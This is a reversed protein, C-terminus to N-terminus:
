WYSDLSSHPLRSRWQLQLRPKSEVWFSEKLGVSKSEVWDYFVNTVGWSTCVAMQEGVAAAEDYRIKHRIYCVQCMNELWPPEMRCSKTHTRPEFRTTVIIKVKTFLYSYIVCDCLDAHAFTACPRHIVHFPERHDTAKGFVGPVWIARNRITVDHITTDFDSEDIKFLTCELHDNPAIKRHVQM